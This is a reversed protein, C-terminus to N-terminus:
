SKQKNGNEWCMADKVKEKKLKSYSEQKEKWRKM